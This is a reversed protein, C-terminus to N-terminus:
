KYTGKLTLTFEREVLSPRDVTGLELVAIKVKSNWEVDPFNDVVFQQWKYLVDLPPASYFKRFGTAVTEGSPQQIVETALSNYKDPLGGIYYILEKTTTM